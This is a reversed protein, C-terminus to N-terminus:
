FRADVALAALLDCWQQFFEAVSKSELAITEVQGWSARATVVDGLLDFEVDVVGRPTPMPSTGLGRATVYLACQWWHNEYPALALRTKGAIQVWRRFTEYTPLWDDLSLAPWADAPSAPSEARDSPVSPAARM